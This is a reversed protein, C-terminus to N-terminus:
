DIGFNKKQEHYKVAENYFAALDQYSKFHYRDEIEAFPKRSTEVRFKPFNESPAIIFFKVGKLPSIQYLRLLGDRVNTTHEVEFCYEPFGDPEFWIVDIERVVELTSRFTFEPVEQLTAIAGLTKNKYPKTRDRASLYTEFGLLNGLELLVGEAEDHTSIEELPEKFLIRLVKEPKGTIEIKMEEERPMVQDLIYYLFFDVDVFDADAFGHTRLENKIQGLLQACAEYGEGDVSYTNWVNSPLLSKMELFPLVNIPTKNWLCYKDPSVFVLIESISSIGLGKIRSRFRDYRDKLADRGSLLGELEERLKELGNDRIIKNAIYEKNGWIQMAWLMKLITKFEDETSQDIHDKAFTKGFLQKRQVRDKQWEKGRDTRMFEKFGDIYKTVNAKQDSTLTVM